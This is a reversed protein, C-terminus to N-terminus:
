HFANQKQMTKRIYFKSNKQLIVNTPTLQLCAFILGCCTFLLLLLDKNMPYFYM